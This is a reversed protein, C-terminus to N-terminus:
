MKPWNPLLSQVQHVASIKPPYRDAGNVIVQGSNQRDPDQNNTIFLHFSVELRISVSPGRGEFVPLDRDRLRKVRSHLADTLSIGCEEPGTM